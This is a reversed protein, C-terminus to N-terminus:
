GDYGRELARIQTGVEEGLYGPISFGSDDRYLTEPLEIRLM